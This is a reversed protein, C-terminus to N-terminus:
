GHTQTNFIQAAFRRFFTRRSGVRDGRVPSKALACPEGRSVGHAVMKRWETASMDLQPQGFESKRGLHSM